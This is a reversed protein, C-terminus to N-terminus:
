PGQPNFVIGRSRRDRLDTRDYGHSGRILAANRTYAAQSTSVVPDMDVEGDRLRHTLSMRHAAIGWRAIAGRGGSRLVSM